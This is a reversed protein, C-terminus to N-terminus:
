PALPRANVPAPCSEAGGHRGGLRLWFDWPHGGAPLGSVEFYLGIRQTEEADEFDWGMDQSAGGVNAVLMPFFGRAVLEPRIAFNMELRQQEQAGGGITVAFAYRCVDKVCYARGLEALDRWGRRVLPVDLRPVRLRQQGTAALPSLRWSYLIGSAPRLYAAADVPINVMMPIHGADEYFGVDTALSMRIHFFLVKLFFSLRALNGVLGMRSSEMTSEIHRADFNMTFFNKVDARITMRSDMAVPIWAGGAADTRFNIAAFQMYNNPNFRYQYHRSAIMHAVPDFVVAGKQEPLPEVAAGCNTLFAARGTGPDTLEFVAPGRCPLPPLSALRGSASPGAFEERRFSLFDTPRAQERLFSMDQFFLLHGDDDVPDVQMPLARWGPPQSRWTFLRLGGRPGSQLQKFENLFLTSPCSHAATTWVAMFLLVLRYVLSSLASAERYYNRRAGLIGARTPGRGFELLLQRTKAGINTTWTVWM